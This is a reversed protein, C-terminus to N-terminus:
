YSLNNEKIAKSAEALTCGHKQMLQRILAHRNKEKASVQRTRKPKKEMGAAMMLMPAAEELEPAAAEVGTLFKGANDKMFQMGQKAVEKSVENIGAKKIGSALDKGFHKLSKVFHFKGGTLQDPLHEEVEQEIAHAKKMAKKVVSKAQKMNPISFNGGEVEDEDYQYGYGDNVRGSDPLFQMMEGKPNSKNINRVMNDRQMQLRNLQQPNAQSGSALMKQKQAQTLLGHLLQDRIMKRYQPLQEKSDM